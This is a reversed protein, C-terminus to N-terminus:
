TQELHLPVLRQKLPLVSFVNIPYPCSACSVDNKSSVMSELFFDILLMRFKASFVLLLPYPNNYFGNSFAQRAAVAEYADGNTFNVM